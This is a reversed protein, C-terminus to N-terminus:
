GLFMQRACVTLDNEGGEMGRRRCVLQVRGRVQFIQDDGTNAALAQEGKSMEAFAGFKKKLVEVDGIRPHAAFAELWGSV